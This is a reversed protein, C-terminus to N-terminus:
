FVPDAALSLWVNRGPSRRGDASVVHNISLCWRPTGPTKTPHTDKAQIGSQEWPRWTARSVCLDDSRELHSYYDDSSSCRTRTRPTTAAVFHLSINEKVRAALDGGKEFASARRRGHVTFVIRPHYDPEFRFCTSGFVSSGQRIAGLAGIVKQGPGIHKGNCGINM